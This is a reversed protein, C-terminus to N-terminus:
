EALMPKKLMRFIVFVFILLLIATFFLSAVNAEIESVSFLAPSPIVSNPSTVLLFTAINNAAHVGLALELTKDKLTLWALFVAIMFYYGLISVTGEWSSQTLVEPNMGHLATFLLSPLLIGLWNGLKSGIGQLLYGRCFLEEAAIQLPTLLLVWGVFLLFTDAQFNWTFDNPALGYSVAIEVVKLMFFVSFGQAIRKWSIRSVPTILSRLSRGHLFRVALYIGLLFLLFALNYFVYTTLPDVGVIVSDGPSVEDPPLMRTEPSDDNLVYAILLGNSLLGGPVIFTFLILLSGLLYRWWDNKGQQAIQIFSNTMSAHKFQAVSIATKIIVHKRPLKAQLPGFSLPQAM